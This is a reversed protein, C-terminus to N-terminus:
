AGRLHEPESSAYIDGSNATDPLAAIWGRLAVADVPEDFAWSMNEGLAANFARYGLAEMREIVKMAVDRQITTFEASIGRVPQSLGALVDAEHGEVDIKIFGPVGYRGILADLTTQRVTIAADWRQGEWGPAGAAAAVFADSATAVTPNATNLRLRVRGERAGLVCREVKVARGGFAGVIRALLPQPEVAIVRAGLRAFCATRDGVHAGIDFALDGAGVFRAYWADLQACRGPAFYTAISHAAAEAEAGSM